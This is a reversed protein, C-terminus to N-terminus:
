SLIGMLHGVDGIELLLKNISLSVLALMLNLLKEILINNELSIFSIELNYRM